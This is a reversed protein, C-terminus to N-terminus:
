NLKTTINQKKNQRRIKDSNYIYIDRGGDDGTVKRVQPGAKFKNPLSSPYTCDTTSSDILSSDHFLLGRCVQIKAGELCIAPIQDVNLDVSIAEIIIGVVQCM